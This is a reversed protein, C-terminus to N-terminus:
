GENQLLKRRRQRDLQAVEGRIPRSDQVTKTRAAEISEEMRALVRDQSEQSPHLYIRATTTVDSHRAWQSALKLMREKDSGGQELINTVFSHRLGHFGLSPLEHNRCFRSWASALSNPKTPEGSRRCVVYGEPNWQPGMALRFEDQAAKHERLIEIAQSPLPVSGASAETKPPEIHLEGGEVQEIVRQISVMGADLDVDSWRLGCVEGERLGGWAALVLPIYVLQPGRNGRWQADPSGRAAVLAAVIQEHSWTAPVRPRQQPPHEMLKAPNVTVWCRPKRAAWSYVASLTVRIHRRTTESLGAKERADLLRWIDDDTLEVALTAGLVPVIHNAINDRYFKVTKPRMRHPAAELFRRCLEGVTLNRVDRDLRQELEAIWDDLLRKAARKGKAAETRQQKPYRRRPKGEADLVPEGREDLIPEPPLNVILLWRDRGSAPEVHGTLRSGQM